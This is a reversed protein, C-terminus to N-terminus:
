EVFKNFVEVAEGYNKIAFAKKGEPTDEINILRFLVCIQLFDKIQSDTVPIASARIKNVFQEYSLLQRGSVIKSKDDYFIDLLALYMDRKEEIVSAMNSKLKPESAIILEEKIEPTEVVPQTQAQIPEEKIEPNELVPQAQLPIEESKAVLPASQNNEPEEQILLPAKEPEAFHPVVEPVITEIQDEFKAEDIKFDGNVDSTYVISNKIPNEEKKPEEIDVSISEPEIPVDIVHNTNQPEPVSKEKKSEEESSDLAINFAILLVIALPDFVIVILLIFYNAVRDLSWNTIRAIYKIPGIESNIEASNMSIIVSDLKSQDFRASQIMANLSDIDSTLRSVEKDSQAISAQAAKASTMKNKSILSDIRNEQQNRLEILNNTRKEKRDIAEEYSIIREEINKKNAEVLETQSDGIKLKSATKEYLSSLFGYIGISTLLMIFITFAFLPIRWIGLKNWLRKLVTVSVVKGFEIASAMVIISLTAGDFFKTMGTISFFAAVIALTIACFGILYPLLSKKMMAFITFILNIDSKERSLIPIPM